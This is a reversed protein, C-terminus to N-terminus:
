RRCTRYSYIQAELERGEPISPLVNVVMGVAMGRVLVETGEVAFVLPSRDQPRGGSVDLFILTKEAPKIEKVVLVVNGTPSLCPIEWVGGVRFFVAEESIVRWKGQPVPSFADTLASGWIVAVVLVLALFFALFWKFYGGEQDFTPRFM